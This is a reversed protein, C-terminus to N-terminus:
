DLQRSDVVMHADLCGHGLHTQDVVRLTVESIENSDLVLQQLQAFDQRAFVDGLDRVGLGTLDLQRLESFHAHGVQDAVFDLMLRGAYKSRSAAQEGAEISQGDLM